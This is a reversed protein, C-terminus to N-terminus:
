LGCAQAIAVLANILNRPGTHPIDQVASMIEITQDGNTVGIHFDSFYLIRM